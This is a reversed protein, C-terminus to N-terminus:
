PTLSLWVPTMAAVASGSTFAKPSENAKLPSPGPWVILQTSLRGRTTPDDLDVMRALSRRIQARRDMALYLIPRDDAAVPFGLLETDRLKMRALWLQQAITSKGVGQPGVIMLGEGPARLM